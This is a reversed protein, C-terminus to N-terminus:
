AVRRDGRDGQSSTTRRKAKRRRDAALSRGREEMENFRVKSTRRAFFVANRSELAAVFPQHSLVLRVEVDAAACARPQLNLLRVPRLALMAPSTSPAGGGIWRYLWRHGGGAGAAPARDAARRRPVLGDAEAEPIPNVGVWSLM